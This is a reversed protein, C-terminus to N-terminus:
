KGTNIEKIAERRVEEYILKFPVKKLVALKKCDEYEPSVTVIENNIIGIKVKAKGYKTEIEREERKIEKREVVTTRVGLTNTERFIVDITKNALHSNTLVSLLTGLRNKKMYIPTTWVDLTGIDLLVEFLHSFVEPSTDDINTEIKVIDPKTKKKIIKKGIFVRVVDPFELSLTGAGYGLSQIEMPPLEGFKKTLTKLIAAGTPTVLEESIGTSYVPVDKLIEVVAPAPNPILGHETKIMGTGMPIPSAYVEEIKLYEIAAVVGVIDIITDVAGIEHFHVQELPVQHIKSEAEALCYLIQLSKIVIEEPLESDELLGKINSWTRIIGKEKTSIKINQAALNHSNVTEVKIDVKPLFINKFIKKLYSLSCGADILSALTMDGSIGSFC